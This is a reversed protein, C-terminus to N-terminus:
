LGAVDSLDDVERQRTEAADVCDHVIGRDAGQSRHEVGVLLQEVADHRDVQLTGIQGAAGHDRVHYALAAARNDIDPGACTPALRVHRGVARALASQDREAGRQGVIEQMIADADVGDNRATPTDDAPHTETPDAAIFATEAL